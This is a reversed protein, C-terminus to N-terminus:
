RVRREVLLCRDRLPKPLLPFSGVVHAYDDSTLGYLGSVIANLRAYVDPAADIGQETLKRAHGALERFAASGDPPRPVPLRSMLATTVHTTVNLRVLYNAVLSNLLALLCWQANENLRTKLVFLTHTSIAGAPLLGAILTLRNTASAVDRYAIRHRDFSASPDILTAAAVRSIELAAGDIFVQFPALHKGEVVPLATRGPRRSRATFHGRDDTANLERGFRAHWGAASGLPPAASATTLVALAAPSSLAPVTLHEPDWAELRSRTVNLWEGEQDQRPDSALRDLAAPDQIGSRFRLVETRGSHTATLVVFRVGRHIPFIGAKNDLGIWTDVCCRDFLRRRLQASGHDSAIGSPLILGFRGGPRTIQAARELFLQYRNAHGQGQATYIGSRRLFRHVPARRERDAARDTATGTDARLMDWPPNGLVADFGGDARRRGRADFFVEPFALEWHFLSHRAAVSAAQRLWGTLQDKPLTTAGGLVAALWENVV